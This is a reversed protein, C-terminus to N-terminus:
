DANQQVVLAIVAVDGLRRASVRRGGCETIADQPVSLTVVLVLACLVGLGRGQKTCGQQDISTTLILKDGTTVGLSVRNTAQCHQEAAGAIVAVRRLGM